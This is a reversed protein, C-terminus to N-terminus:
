KEIFGLEKKAIKNLETESLYTMIDTYYTTGTKLDLFINGGNNIDWIEYKRLEKKIKKAKDILEFYKVSSIRGLERAKMVTILNTFDYVIYSRTKTAFAFHPQLVKIGAKKLVRNAILERTASEATLMAFPVIEEKIFFKNKKKNNLELKYIHKVRTEVTKIEMVKIKYRKNPDHFITGKQISNEPKNTLKLIDAFLGPNEKIIEKAFGNHMLKRTKSITMFFQNTNKQHEPTVWKRQSKRKWFGFNPKKM